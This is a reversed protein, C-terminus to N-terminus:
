DNPDGQPTPQLSSVKKMPMEPTWQLWTVWAHNMVDAGKPRDIYQNLYGTEFALQPTIQRNIGLFIRNQDFGAQPGGSVDNVNIFLENGFVAQWRKDHTLPHLLRLLYRGRLSTDEVGELFRQEFRFRHVVQTSKLAHNVQVQQFLRHEHTVDGPFYRPVWVYGQWVSVHKNLQLGLAPRVLIEKLQSLNDGTRPQVEAWIRLKHKPANQLTVLSWNQFDHSTDAWVSGYALLAAIAWGILHGQNMM